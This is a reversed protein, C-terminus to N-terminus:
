EFCYMRAGHGASVGLPGESYPSISSVLKIRTRNISNPNAPHHVQLM